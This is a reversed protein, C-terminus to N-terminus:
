ACNGVNRTAVRRVPEASTRIRQCFYCARVRALVVCVMLGRVRRHLRASGERVSAPAGRIAGPGSRRGAANLAELQIEM